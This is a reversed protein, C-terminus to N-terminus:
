IDLKEMKLNKLMTHCWDVRAAKRKDTLSHPVWRACLKKVQLYEHLITNMATSWIELTAEIEHYTIHPDQTILKRVAAVNEATVSTHPRSAHYM